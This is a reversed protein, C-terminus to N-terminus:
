PNDGYHKEVLRGIFIICVAVSSVAIPLTRYTWWWSARSYADLLILETRGLFMPIFNILIGGSLGMFCLFMVSRKPYILAWWCCVGFIFAQSVVIILYLFATVDM